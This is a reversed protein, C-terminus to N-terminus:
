KKKETAALRAEFKIPEDDPPYWLTPDHPKGGADKKSHDRDDGDVLLVKVVRGKFQKVSKTEPFYFQHTIVMGAELSRSAIGFVQKGDVAKPVDVIAEGSEDFFKGECFFGSIKRNARVRVILVPKGFHDALQISGDPQWEAFRKHDTQREITASLVTIPSQAVEVKEEVTKRSEDGPSFRVFALLLVVPVSISRRLM